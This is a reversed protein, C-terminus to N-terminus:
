AVDREGEDELALKTLAEAAGAAFAEKDFGNGGEVGHLLENARKDCWTLATGEPMALDRAVQHALDRYFGEVVDAGYGPKWKALFVEEERALARSAAEALGKIRSADADLRRARELAKERELRRGEWRDWGMARTKAEKEPVLDVKKSPDKGLAVPKPAPAALEPISELYRVYAPSYVGSNIAIAHKAWTSRIDGKKMSSRDCEVYIEEGPIALNWEQESAVLYPEMTSAGYDLMFQEVSAYSFGETQAGLKALPMNFFRAIQEVTFRQGDLLEAEQPNVSIGFFKMDEQLILIGGAGSVGGQQTINKQLEAKVKPSIRKPHQLVGRQTLGRAFFGGSFESQAIGVGIAERAATLVSLGKRGDSGLMPVHHVEGRTLIRPRGRWDWARYVPPDGDNGEIGLAELGGLSSAVTAAAEPDLIELRQPNLPVAEAIGGPGPVLEAVSNGALLRHVMGTQQFYYPTQYRNPQITLLRFLPLDRALERDEPGFERFPNRMIRGDSESLIKICAYFVSLNMARAANVNPGAKSLGGGGGWPEGWSPHNWVARESGSAAALIVEGATMLADRMM